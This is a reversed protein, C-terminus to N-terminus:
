DLLKQMFYRPFIPPPGGIQGFLTFGLQEYFPRAQFAFTDLWMQRCGRARAEAEARRMLERGLGHGRAEAPTIVLGIYFSGWLSAAWLGGRVAPDGDATIELAFPAGEADGVAAQNFALLHAWIAEHARVPDAARAIAYTTM